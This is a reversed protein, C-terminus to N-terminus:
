RLLTKELLTLFFVAVTPPNIRLITLAAITQNIIIPDIRGAVVALPSQYPAARGGVVALLPQQPLALAALRLFAAARTKELGTLLFLGLVFM